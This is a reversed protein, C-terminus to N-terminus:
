CRELLHYTGWVQQAASVGPLYLSRAFLGPNEDRDLFKEQVVSRWGGRCAGLPPDEQQSFWPQRPNHQGGGKRFDIIYNCAGQDVFFQPVERNDSNFREEVAQGGYAGRPFPHPLCPHPTGEREFRIFRLQAAGGGESSSSGGGRGGGGQQTKEPLFFSGPFRHWEQGACVTLAPPADAAAEMIGSRVPYAFSHLLGQTGPLHYATRRAFALWVKHHGTFALSLMAVRSLSLAGSLLFFLGIIGYSTRRLLLPAELPDSSSSSHSRSRPPPPLLRLMRAALLDLAGDLVFAACLPILPYIPYMFREEKHPKFSFITLYLALQAALTAKRTSPPSPPAAPPSSTSTSASASPATPTFLPSYHALLAQVALWLPCLLALLAVLSHSLLLNKVYWLKGAVTPDAFNDSGRLNGDSPDLQVQLATLHVRALVGNLKVLLSPINLNYYLTNLQYSTWVGYFYRDVCAAYLTAGGLAGLSAYVVSLIPSWDWAASATAPAPHQAAAAAAASAGRRGGGSAGAPPPPSARRQQPPPAAGALYHLPWCQLLAPPLTCGLIHLVLPPLSLVAFPFGLALAVSALAAAAAHNERLWFGWAVMFFVMTFTNPLYSSAVQLMGPSLLLGLLLLLAIRGGFRKKVSTYLFAEAGACVMAFIMRMRYYVTVKDDGHFGGMFFGVLAYLGGYGYSRFMYKRNNEWTQMGSGYLMYHTNEFYNFAEDADRDWLSTVNYTGVIRVLVLVLASFDPHPAYSLISSAFDAAAAAAASAPSPLAAQPTGASSAPPRPTPTSSAGRGGGSKRRERVFPTHGADKKLM